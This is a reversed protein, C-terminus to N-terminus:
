FDWQLTVGYTRVSSGWIGTEGFDFRYKNTFFDDETLNRGFLTVRVRSDPDYLSFRANAIVYSEQTVSNFPDYFFGDNYYADGALEGDLNFFFPFAYSAGLTGTLEPTRVTTNGSFDTNPTNLGTVPDFGEGIFNEYEGDLFVASASLVLAETPTWRAEVEAGQIRYSGANQLQTVGGSTLALLQVQANEVRTSFIAANLVLSDFLESKIGIENSSASEPEIRLPPANINLGNYNGSKFAEAYRYYALVGDTIQWNLGANPTFSNFTQAQPQFDILTVTEDEDLGPINGFLPVDIARAEVRSFDLEREEVSFRGGLALQLSETMQFSLQTYASYHFTSIGSTLAAQALPNQNLSPDDNCDINVPALINNCLFGPNLLGTGGLAGDIAGVGITVPDLTIDYRGTKTSNSTRM